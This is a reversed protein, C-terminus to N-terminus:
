RPNALGKVAVRRWEERNTALDKTVNRRKMDEEIVSIWKKAPRGRRSSGEVTATMVKKVEEDKERRVVHGYWRMRKQRLHEDLGILDLRREIEHSNIRDKLTVGCILRLMRRETAKLRQLSETKVAWTEAGYTLVSRVCAKYVVGKLKLSIGRTCLVGSLSRFKYWAAKVRAIVAREVGGGDNLVDELYPFEGVCELEEDELRFREPESRGGEKCTRCRFDQVAKALAGSKGSCRGHVWYHCLTCRISNVGVRKGCVVCPDKDAEKPAAKRTCKMVKTKQLNM